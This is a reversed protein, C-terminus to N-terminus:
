PIPQPDTTPGQVQPKGDAWNVRDIWMFRSDGRGGAVTEWAHYVIWTQEGVQILAQHGPGLVLPPDLRSKLIPNEPADQCPGTPSDCAAYGVAYDGGGYDNASFFLYYKGDHKFMTPAEVVHGEWYEDNSVLQKPQGVVQQGDPSLEQVYIYTTRGCCNGDNKFYLYLKDGDRFPDPDITGGEDVQCVLAHDNSDKFRGDPTDSVAVGVCQKNSAKDRATYYMVYKGGIPMVEPAWVFNGGIQAWSPLAPLAGGKLSWHVLDPSTAWQLNIGLRGTAYAYYLNGVKLVFPDPFDSRLVPNTFTAGGPAPTAAATAGAPAETAPAGTPAPTPVITPAITPATTPATTPAVPTATAASAPPPPATTPTAAGCGALILALLVPLGARLFLAPRVPRAPRTVPCSRGGPSLLLRM